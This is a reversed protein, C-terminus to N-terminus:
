GHISNHARLMAWGFEYVTSMESAPLSKMGGLREVFNDAAAREAFVNDGMM